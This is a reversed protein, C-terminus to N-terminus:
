KTVKHGCNPEYAAPALLRKHLVFVQCMAIEWAPVSCRAAVRQQWRYYSAVGVGLVQCLRRVPYYQTQARVFRYRSM